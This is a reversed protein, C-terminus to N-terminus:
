REALNGEFRGQRQKLHTKRQKELIRERNTRYHQRQYERYKRYYEDAYERFYVMLIRGPRQFIM